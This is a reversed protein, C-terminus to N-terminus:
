GGTVLTAALQRGHRSTTGRQGILTSPQGRGAPSHLSFCDASKPFVWLYRHLGDIENFRTIMDLIIFPAKLRILTEFRGFRVSSLCFDLCQHRRRATEPRADIYHHSKFSHLSLASVLRQQQQQQKQHHHSHRGKGWRDSGNSLWKWWTKRDGHRGRALVNTQARMEARNQM